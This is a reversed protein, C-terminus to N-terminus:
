RRIRTVTLDDEDDEGFDVIQLRKVKMLAYLKPFKWGAIMLLMYWLVPSTAGVVLSVSVGARTYGYGPYWSGLAGWILLSGAFGAVMAVLILRFNNPIRHQERYSAKVLWTLSMASFMGALVPALFIYDSLLEM